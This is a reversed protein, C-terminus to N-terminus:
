ARAAAEAQRRSDEMSSNWCAPCLAQYKEEGGVEVPQDKPGAIRFSRTASQMTGCSDCDAKCWVVEDAVAILRPMVSGFVELESTAALGSILIVAKKRVHRVMDFLMHPRDAYEHFLMPEDIWLATAGEAAELLRDPCELEIAPWGEGNKTRLMGEHEHGRVSCKPRVVVLDHGRRVLRKAFRMAKTTKESAVPGCWVYMQQM